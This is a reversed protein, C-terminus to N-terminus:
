EYDGRRLDLRKAAQGVWQGPPEGSKTYYAM